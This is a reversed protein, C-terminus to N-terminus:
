GEENPTKIAEALIAVSQNIADRVDANCSLQRLAQNILELAQQPTM